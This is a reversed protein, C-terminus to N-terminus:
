VSSVCLFRVCARLCSCVWPRVRPTGLNTRYVLDHIEAYLTGRIVPIRTGNEYMIQVSFEDAFTTAAYHLYPRASIPSTGPVMPTVM